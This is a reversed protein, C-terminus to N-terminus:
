GKIRVNPRPEIQLPTATRDPQEQPPLPDAHDAARIDALGDEQLLQNGIIEAVLQKAYGRMKSPPSGM